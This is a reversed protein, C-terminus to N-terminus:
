LWCWFPFISASEHYKKVITKSASPTHSDDSIQATFAFQDVNDNLSTGDIQDVYLFHNLKYRRRYQGYKEFPLRIPYRTLHIYSRGM